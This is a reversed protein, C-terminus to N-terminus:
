RTTFGELRLTFAHKTYLLYVGYLFVEQADKALVPVTRVQAETDDSTLSAAGLKVHESEATINKIAKQAAVKLQEQTGAASSVLSKTDEM